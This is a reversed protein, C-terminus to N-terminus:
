KSQKNEYTKYLIRKMMPVYFRWYFSNQDNENSAQFVSMFTALGSAKYFNNKQNVDVYDGAFYYSIYDDRKQYRVIAPFEDPIGNKKLKRIGNETLKFQYEALIESESKTVIIDFWFSYPITKEFGFFKEGAPNLTLQFGEKAIDVDNRAVVIKGNENAFLFGEGKFGWEGRHQKEYNRIAWIPVETEPKDKELEKFYRGIWGTWELGLIKYIKRKARRRTPDAFSNFEVVLKKNNKLSRSILDVESEKLGGYIIKSFDGDKNTGYFEKEYVGYTDAVYIM